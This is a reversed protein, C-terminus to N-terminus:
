ILKMTKINMDTISSVRQRKEVHRKDATQHPPVLVNKPMNTQFIILTRQQNDYYSSIWKRISQSILWAVLCQLEVVCYSCLYDQRCCLALSIDTNRWEVDRNMTRYTQTSHTHTNTKKKKHTKGHFAARTSSSAEAPSSSKSRSNFPSQRFCEDLFPSFCSVLYYCYFPWKIFVDEFQM